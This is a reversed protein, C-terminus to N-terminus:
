TNKIFQFIKEARIDWTYQQIKIFAESTLASSLGPNNILRKIGVAMKEASGPEVLIASKDDLIERISNLDSAVIPKKSAMYEFIKMPSMYYNYHDNMPFPALLIDFAKLYIPVLKNKIWGIFVVRNQVNHKKAINKYYRMDEGNGGVLILNIDKELYRLTELAIGVGKEMGMTKLMGVYGLLTKNLPLGIKKRAEEKDININFSKIDVGNPQVLIKEPLLGFQKILREKKWHNTTIIGRIKKLFYKYFLEKNEPFDHIDYFINKRLFSLFFLSFKDHSFFADRKDSRALLYLCSIIAYVLSTILFGVRGFGVLDIIPLKIIEFSKDIDYFLFPDEKIKNVRKPAILVLQNKKSLAECLKMAELGEAKETPIRSNILYYIKM